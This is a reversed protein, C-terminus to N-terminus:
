KLKVGTQRAISSLTGPPLDHTGHVPVPVSQTGKTMIHHSGNIHDLRWGAAKLKALVTKGNM